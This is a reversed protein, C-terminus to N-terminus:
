EPMRYHETCSLEHTPYGKDILRQGTGSLPIEVLVSCRACRVTEALARMARGERQLSLGADIADNGAQWLEECTYQEGHKVIAPARRRPTM